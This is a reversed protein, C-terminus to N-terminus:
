CLGDVIKSPGTGIWSSFQLSNMFQTFFESQLNQKSFARIDIIVANNDSFINKYIGESLGPDNYEVGALGSELEMESYQIDLSGVQEQYYQLPSLSSEIIRVDIGVPQDTYNVSDIINRDPLSLFRISLVGEEPPVLSKEEYTWDSPYQLSFGYEENEYTLWDSTDVESGQETNTNENSNTVVANTNDNTTTRTACGALLTISATLSIISILQHKNM